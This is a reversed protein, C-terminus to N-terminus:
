DQCKERRELAHEVEHIVCERQESEVDLPPEEVYVRKCLGMRTTLTPRLEFGDLRSYPGIISDATKRDRAYIEHVLGKRGCIRERYLFRRMLYMNM